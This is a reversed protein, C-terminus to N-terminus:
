DDRQLRQNRRDERRQRLVAREYSREEREIKAKLEAETM